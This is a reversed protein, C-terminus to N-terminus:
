GGQTGPNMTVHERIVNNNGIERRSVVGDYKLDQPSHGISAFPFIHTAEGVKTYGTIVVHSELHIRDGLITNGGIYCYPGIKVDVGISSGDEIIATPHIESM